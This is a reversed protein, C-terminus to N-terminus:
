HLIILRKYIHTRKYKIALYCCNAPLGPLAFPAPVYETILLSIPIERVISPCHGAPAIIYNLCVYAYM